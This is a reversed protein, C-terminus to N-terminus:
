RLVEDAQFLLTPPITLGLAQATKLNIVLEFKVPREVPLDAPKTGKLIKDVFVAARQCQDRPDAAYSLLSGAEAFPRVPAITPLRQRLALELLRHRHAVYVIGGAPMIVLADAQHAAMAAFAAEFTEPGEAEARLLDIGLAQAEREFASPVRAQLPSSPRVLLAVRRIQPVAEKLLELRKSTLAWDGMDLGTLNGGPRALSEVLGAEELETGVAVVLPITTTVQKLARASANTITFIVDPQRQVLEAALAPFRDVQSEGYRYEVVINHGERYGLEELRHRFPELCPGMRAPTPPGGPALVGVVPIQAPKQAALALSLWLVDLALMGIIWRPQAM